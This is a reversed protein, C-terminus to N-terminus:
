CVLLKAYCRYLMVSYIDLINYQLSALRTLPIVSMVDGIVARDLKNKVVCFYEAIEMLM